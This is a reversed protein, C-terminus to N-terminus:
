DFACRPNLESPAYWDINFENKLRQKANHWILHCMGLQYREAESIKQEEEDLVQKIVVGLTDDEEQHDALRYIRIGKKTYRQGSADKPTAKDALLIREVLAADKELLFRKAQNVPMGTAKRFAMIEQATPQSKM